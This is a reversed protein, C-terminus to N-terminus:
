QTRMMDLSYKFTITYLYSDADSFFLSLCLSCFVKHLGWHELMFWLMFASLLFLCLFNQKRLVMALPLLLFLPMLFEKLDINRWSFFSEEMWTDVLTYPLGFFYDFGHGLTFNLKPFIYWYPFILNYQIDLFESGMKFLLNSYKIPWTKKFM